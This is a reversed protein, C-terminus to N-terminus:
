VYQGANEATAKSRPKKFKATGVNKEDVSVNMIWATECKSLNYGNIDLKCVQVSKEDVKQSLSLTKTPHKTLYYCSIM